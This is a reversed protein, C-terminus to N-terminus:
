PVRSKNRDTRRHMKGFLAELSDDILSSGDIEACHGGSNPFNGCVLALPALTSGTKPLAVAVM